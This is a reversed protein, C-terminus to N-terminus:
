SGSSIYRRKKSRKQNETREEKEWKIHARKRQSWLVKHKEESIYIIYGLRNLFQKRRDGVWKDLLKKLTPFVM